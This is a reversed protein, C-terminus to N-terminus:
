TGFDNWVNPTICIKSCVYLHSTTIYYSTTVKRPLRLVKRTPPSSTLNEHCACPFTLSRRNTSTFTAKSNPNTHRATANFAPIAFSGPLAAQDLTDSLLTGCTHTAVLDLAEGFLTGVLTGQLLTGVLADEVLTDYLLRGCTDGALTDWM